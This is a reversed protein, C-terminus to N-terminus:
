ARVGAAHMVKLKAETVDISAVAVGRLRRKGQKLANVLASTDTGYPAPQILVRHEAGIRDLMEM